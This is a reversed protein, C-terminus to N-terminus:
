EYHSPRPNSERPRSEVDAEDSSPAKGTKLWEFPVGTIAAIAYLSQVNPTIHGNIWNGITNRNVGLEEAAESVGIDAARLAKRIRDALDFELNVPILISM